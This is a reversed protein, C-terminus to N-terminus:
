YVELFVRRTPRVQKHIMWRDWTATNQAVEPDIELFGQRAETDLVDTLRQFIGLEMGAVGCIYILSRDSALIEGLRDIERGLRDQVYMPPAGDPQRERSIATLYTFNPHKLAHSVLEDHYLLDSAYAVGTILTIRSPVEAALLDLLMGRFPAIGTGTAIFFYDHAGPDAPLVFRKGNPGTLRVEDGPQSDCLFNSAVGLHLKNSVPDEVINRKVTTAVIRGQGDEGVTPSALSYLRLKHPKGKDDLGPPLVGFSQGAVFQGELVTGSLDFTIHRVFAAAKASATCRRNEVVRAVVPRDPRALHMRVDVLAPGARESREIM